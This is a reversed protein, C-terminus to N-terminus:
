EADHGDGTMEVRLIGEIGFTREARKTCCYGTLYARGGDIRVERPIVERESVRSDSRSFYKIRVSAGRSIAREIRSIKAQQMEEHSACGKGFLCVYDGLSSIEKEGLKAAIARFVGLTLEVDALARHEQGNGIGLSQSVYWLAHRELPLIRRAMALVDIVPLHKPFEFGARRYENVMFGMDFPANYSCLCSGEIFRTFEPIVAEMRPAGALMADSIGNVRFAGESVPRGPNILSHFEALKEDGRVRVAALEIVRDSLPDLGTTETDFVTFETQRV